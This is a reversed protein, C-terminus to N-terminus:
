TVIVPKKTRWDYPYKHTIKQTGVLRQWKKLLLLMNKSGSYLVDRGVLSTADEAGLVEAVEPTFHGKGDVHCLLTSRANSTSLLGQIRFTNYDESGHAPALHVLGTGSDPTVHPAHIIEFSSVSKPRRFLPMYKVGILAKGICLIM